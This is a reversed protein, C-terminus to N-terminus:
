VAMKSAVVCSSISSSLDYKFPTVANFPFEALARTNPM